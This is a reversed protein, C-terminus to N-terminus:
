KWQIADGRCEFTKSCSRFLKLGGEECFTDIVADANIKAAEIRMNQKAGDLSPNTGAERACSTGVVEDVITYERDEVEETSLIEINASARRLDTDKTEVTACSLILSVSCLTILIIVILAKIPKMIITKKKIRNLLTETISNKFIEPNKTDSKKLGALDINM